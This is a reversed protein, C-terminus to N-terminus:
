GEDERADLLEKLRGFSSGMQRQFTRAVLPEALGLIGGLRVQITVDLRTGGEAPAFTMRAEVPISGSQSKTTIKRNEEYEAFVIEGVMRQGLIQAVQRWTTGPGIPGDSTKVVEVTQSEWLPDNERNSLFAFVEEVPRKIILHTSLKM